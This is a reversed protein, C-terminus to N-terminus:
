FPVLSSDQQVVPEPSSPQSMGGTYKRYAAIVADNLKKQAAFRKDKDTGYTDFHRSYQTKGDKEYKDSPFSVFLGKSGELLTFKVSFENDLVLFGNAKVTKHNKVPFCKVDTVEAM